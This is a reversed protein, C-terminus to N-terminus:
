PKTEESKNLYMIIYLNTGRDKSSILEMEDACRNINFLGMGAGFGMNRIEHTATSFGPQMAQEVDEIGPGDDYAEVTIKHPEIEVRLTGGNNTHIILNMEAEYTAIGCRRAIKQSAGMRLLARKIHNSANGGQTFDGKRINYRLILSTRDSVIDEFLHSTRYRIIEEAHYDKQLATLLGASIDGKTLIGVLDGRKNLVPLRGYGTQSFIKLAEVVAENQHMTVPQPTMYDKVTADKKKDRLYKILDEISLIGILQHSEVVPAGSFRERQFIDLVTDMKMKPPLSKVNKSMVESIKLEYALEETRSIEIADNDNLVSNKDPM